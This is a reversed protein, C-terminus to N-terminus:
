ADEVIEMEDMETELIYEPYVEHVTEPNRRKNFQHYHVIEKVVNLLHEDENSTTNDTLEHYAISHACAQRILHKMWTCAKSEYAKYYIHTMMEIETEDFVAMIEDDFILVDHEAKLRASTRGFSNIMEMQLNGGNGTRVEGTGAKIVVLFKKYAM